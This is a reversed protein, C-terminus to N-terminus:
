LTTVEPGYEIAGDYSYTDDYQRYTHLDASLAAAAWWPSSAAQPGAALTIVGGALKTHGPKFRRITEHAARQTTEDLTGGFIVEFESWRDVDGYNAAGDYDLSGDYYDVPDAIFEHIVPTQGTVQTLAAIIGVLTGGSVFVDWATELRARWAAVSEGDLRPMRRERAHESLAWEPAYRPFRARRTTNLADVATDLIDGLSAIARGVVPKDPNLWAPMLERLRDAMAM